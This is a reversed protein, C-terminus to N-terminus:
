ANSARSPRTNTRIGVPPEMEPPMTVYATRPVWYTAVVEPLMERVVNLVAPLGVIIMMARPAGEADGLRLATGTTAGPSVEDTFNPRVVFCRQDHRRVNNAGMAISGSVGVGHHMM